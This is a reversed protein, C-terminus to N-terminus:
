IRGQCTFPPREKKFSFQLSFYLIFLNYLLWFRQQDISYLAPTSGTRLPIPVGYSFTDPCKRFILAM